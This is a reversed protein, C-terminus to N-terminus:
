GLGLKERLGGGGHGVSEGTEHAYGELLERAKKSLKTPVV